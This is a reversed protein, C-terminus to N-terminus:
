QSPKRNEQGDDDDYMSKWFEDSFEQARVDKELDPSIADKKLNSPLVHEKLDPSIDDQGLNSSIADQEDELQLGQQLNQQLKLLQDQQHTNSPTDTTPSKSQLPSHSKAKIPRHKDLAYYQSQAYALFVADLKRHQTKVRRISSTVRAFIVSHNGIEVTKEPLIECNFYAAVNQGTLFPGRSNNARTVNALGKEVVSLFPALPDDHPQSFIHAIQACSENAALFNVVLPRGQLICDLTRSPRRISFSVIPEPDVTVSTMSSVSMGRVSDHTFDADPDQETALQTTLVVVSSPVNRMIAKYKDVPSLWVPPPPPPLNIKMDNIFAVAADVASREGSVRPRVGGTIIIQVNFTEEIRRLVESDNSELIPIFGPLILRTYPSTPSKALPPRSNGHGDTQRAGPRRDSAIHTRFVIARRQQHSVRGGFKSWTYFAKYFHSTAQGRVASAM